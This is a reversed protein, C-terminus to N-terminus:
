QIPGMKPLRIVYGDRVPEVRSGVISTWGYKQGTFPQALGAMDYMDGVTVFGYRSIVEDMQDRVAEADGRTPFIIEEFDFRGSTGTVTPSRRDDQSGAYCDRYSIKSVGGGSRAYRSKGGLARTAGGIILDLILNKVGPILQEDVLYDRIDGMDQAGFIKGALKKKTKVTGSVVREIKKDAIAKQEEKFKHSNPTYERDSM